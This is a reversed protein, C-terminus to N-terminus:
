QTARRGLDVSRVVPKRKLGDPNLSRILMDSIPLGLLGQDNLIDPAALQQTVGQRTVSVVNSALGCDRGEWAALLECAIEGLALESMPPPDLGYSYDIEIRPPQSDAIWPWCQGVRVLRNMDIMWEDPDLVVGDLRVETVNRVPSRALLVACSGSLNRRWRQGDEWHIPHQCGASMPARYQETTHCVGFRGGLFRGLILQAGAHAADLVESDYDAIPCQWRIPWPECSLM